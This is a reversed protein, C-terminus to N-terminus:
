CKKLLDMTKKGEDDAKNAQVEGHGYVQNKKYGLYHILRLAAKAQADSVDANDWAIIEVGETNGNSIGVSSNTLTHQGKGGYPIFRHIKAERDIVYQTPFGRGYFVGYVSDATGPGATHHVIFRRLNPDVPIVGYNFRNKETDDIIESETLPKLGVNGLKIDSVGKKLVHGPHYENFNKTTMRKDGELTFEAAGCCYSIMYAQKEPDWKTKYAGPPCRPCGCDTNGVPSANAGGSSVSPNQPKEVISKGTTYDDPNKLFIMQAKVSTDWTNGEIAHDLGTVVFGIRTLEDRLPSAKVYSYPLLEDQITFAHGMAFGSIGNTKFNLSIPIMATARTAKDEGRLKAMRDVYYTTAASVSGPDPSLSNYFSKVANNFQVAVNIKGDLSSSAIGSEGREPIYRDQYNENIFGAFNDGSSGLSSQKDKNSNAGIAMMNALKTSVESKIDLSKAISTKGVLPLPDYKGKTNLTDDKGGPLLQDDVIQYVNGSDTYSLRFVNINGLSKNLDSIIQELIPKLTVKNEENKRAEGKILGMLYDINLLINMTKGKYLMMNGSTEEKKFSYSGKDGKAARIAPSIQDRVSDENSKPKWIPTTQPVTNQNDGGDTQPPVEPKKIDDGIVVSPDIIKKFDEDTGEFPIFATFPDTTLHQPNSLCFNHEPNFDIYSIPTTTNKGEKKDYLVCNHNLLMLFFGFPIYVPHQIPTGEELSQNIKYPLVYSTLLLKFDVPELDVIRATRSLLGTSFGYQARIAFKEEAPAGSYKRGIWKRAILDPLVDKFIGNDFVQRIFSNARSIENSFQIFNVQNAKGSQLTKVLSNVQIARLAVEIASLYSLPSKEAEKSPSQEANETEGETTQETQDASDAINQSIAKTDPPQNLTAIVNDLLSYDNSRIYTPIGIYLTERTKKDKRLIEFPYKILAYLTYFGRDPTAPGEGWDFLTVLKDFNADLGTNKAVSDLLGTVNALVSIVPNRGVPYIAGPLSTSSPRASIQDKGPLILSDTLIKFQTKPLQLSWERAVKRFPVKVTGDKVLINFANTDFEEFANELDVGNLDVIPTDGDKDYAQALASQMVSVYFWKDKNTSNTSKYFATIASQPGKVKLDDFNNDESPKGESTVLNDFARSSVYLINGEPTKSISFNSLNNQITSVFGLKNWLNTIQTGVTATYDPSFDASAGFPLVAKFKPLLVIKKQSNFVVKNEPIEQDASGYQYNSDFDSPYETTSGQGGPGSPPVYVSRPKKAEEILQDFTKEEALNVTGTGPVNKGTLEKYEEPTIGEKDLFDKFPVNNYEGNPPNIIVSVGDLLQTLAAFAEVRDKKAKKKAAEEEAAKAAAEAEAIKRLENYLKVQEDLIGPITSTHNIKTSDGLVGLGMLKISCDYGGEQNYTFNFNTCMGLMADYNGESMRIADAVSEMMTEKNLGDRFPDISFTETTQLTDLKFNSQQSEDVSTTATDSPYFYTQGWELFMTYGLKFYLADMVDLQFKDWCKFNVTAVRVSGLRGQTNITVNTIGPMPRYGYTRVESSGLMGYAYYNSSEPDQEYYTGPFVGSRKYNSKPGEYKSTGAFLTFQKALSDSSPLSLGMNEIFYKRDEEKIIDISSVLRVWATKGTLYRVNSNSSRDDLSNYKSRTMMQKYLWLPMKVGLVNSIKDSMGAM